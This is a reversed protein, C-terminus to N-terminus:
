IIPDWKETMCSCIRRLAPSRWRDKHVLAQLEMEIRCDKVPIERIKGSNLAEALNYEPLLSIGLGQSVCDILFATSGIELPDCIEMRRKSFEEELIRRYNCGRETLLWREGELDKLSVTEKKGAFNEWFDAPAIFLIRVRSRFVVSFNQNMVPSDLLFAAVIEGNELKKILELTTGILVQLRVSPCTCLFLKLGQMHESASLSELIGVRLEGSPEEEGSFRSFVERELQQFRYTYQLLEQGAESLSIKKGQRHFLQVGLEKELLDIQATVTSQAYNLRKAAQSFSNLEAAHAFTRLHRLEM